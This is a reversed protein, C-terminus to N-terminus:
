SRHVRRMFCHEMSCLECNHALRKLGPGIGMVGTVSKIPLMLASETLRIGCFGKGLLGFVKHQEVVDWDCYGPSLRNSRSWGLPAIEAQIKLELWDVVSEVVVSGIADGLYGLYPDQEGAFFGKSWRDFGEGLTAAFWVLAESARLHRCIRPGCEFDVGHCRLRHSGIAVDTQILRYGCSARIHGQAQDWLDELTQRVSDPGQDPYGLCRMVEPYSLTLDKVPVQFQAARDTM